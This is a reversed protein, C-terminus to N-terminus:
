YMFTFRAMVVRPRLPIEAKIFQASSVNAPGYVNTINTGQVQVTWNDRSVGLAADYSTYGPITYKLEGTTPPNQAPDNSDPYNEPANHMSAIHSAGVMAFPGYGGTRWEYRARVNFQLPPSYPLSSGLPGWPNSYPLGHVVTICQGAPTPNNPTNSTIGVSNLCPVNTQESRDWSSSGQLTLGETVRAVLQIEVGRITYSPGNAVFGTGGLNLFDALAWQVDNWSMQYASANLVVRHNLFESKVGLENNILHDSNWGIPTLYQFSNNQYAQTMCRPDTSATGCYAARPPQYPPQGPIRNFGGPRFGQSFTYYAMVDPTIHWALNARNVFGSERKALTFPGGCGGARTCAGNPHNLVLPSTTASYFLSGDEFEDYTYHRTGATVTLVRPILDFDVSGFFALQRYGRQADNGFATNTNERLSPDNAFAGLFPGVASLCAPGGAQAATLNAPNCQPIPLYGFDMQDFIVFKEWFVGFIGRLRNHSDTTIRLEHSQHQNEVTDHWRAVPPYCTLPKGALSPFNAQNFYRATSGICSYYPYPTNRLYNSYDQQGEIHRIMFSGAYVATLSGVQGNLTWATSEYRDKTYAPTFAAIQYPRLATGNSDHPYAYFYGDADLHQFNQQLLLDWDDNFKWLLSARLGQYNVPNTDSAALGANSAKVGTAAEMTGPQYSITSAVNDIYGGRHESFIVARVALTDAVLPVNVIANLVSNSDGGATTGYGASAEGSALDLRPKNTIYRIAGAQAGGGFLTGQPGELVEVRKLDVMYVDNNRAPFQMSQDDLYLAVNPFPAITAQQQNGTGVAGLGRIFINGTAPGNGSYTVSPTHQLIDNFTTLNFQKLQEGSISQVTLPVDQLDEERRNAGVIVEPLQERTTELAPIAASPTAALIRISEPTLYEFRLGTGHLLRSLAEGVPLGKPVAQSRHNAAIESVYMLQLGTQEAFAALAQALPQAPIDASLTSPAVTGAIAAPADLLAAPVCLPLARLVASVATAIEKTPHRL